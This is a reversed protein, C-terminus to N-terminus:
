SIFLISCVSCSMYKSDKWFAKQIHLQKFCPVVVECESRIYKSEYHALHQCIEDSSCKRDRYLTNKQQTEKLLGRSTITCWLAMILSLDVKSVSSLTVGVKHINGIISMSAEEQTDTLYIYNRILIYFYLLHIKCSRLVKWRKSLNLALYLGIPSLLSRSTNRM